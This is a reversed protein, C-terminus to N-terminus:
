GRPGSPVVRSLPQPSVEILVPLVEVVDGHGLPHFVRGPSHSVSEGGRSSFDTNAVTVPLGLVNPPGLAVNQNHMSRSLTMAWGSAAITPTAAAIHGRTSPDTGVAETEWVASKM